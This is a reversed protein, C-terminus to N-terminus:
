SLANDVIRRLEPIVEESFWPNRKIWGRSRWSPHPTVLFRPTYERWARVTETLNRKRQKGLYYRQAYQGILILTHDAPLHRLICQHWRPACEPRPPADGQGKRGPYCFGMPMILFNNPDYFEDPGVGMWERLHDGSPDNWPIGSAHVATGPAQGILVVRACASGTVVPRPGLPLDTCLTCARAETLLQKFARTTAM